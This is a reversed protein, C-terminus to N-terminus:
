GGSDLFIAWAPAETSKAMKEKCKAPTLDIKPATLKIEVTPFRRTKPITNSRIGRNV